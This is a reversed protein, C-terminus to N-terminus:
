ANTLFIKGMPVCALEEEAGLVAAALAHTDVALTVATIAEDALAALALAARLVAVGIAETITLRALAQALLAPYPLLTLVLHAGVGATPMSYAAIGGAVTHIVVSACVAGNGRAGIVATPVADTVRLHALAVAGTIELALVAGHRPFAHGVASQLAHVVADGEAVWAVTNAPVIVM